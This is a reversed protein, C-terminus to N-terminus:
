QDTLNLLADSGKKVRKFIDKIASYSINYKKELAKIRPSSQDLYPHDSLQITVELDRKLEDFEKVTPFTIREGGFIECLNRFEEEGLRSYLYVILDSYRQQLLRAAIFNFKDFFM